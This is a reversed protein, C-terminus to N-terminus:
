SVKQIIRKVLLKDRLSGPPLLVVEPQEMMGKRVAGAIPDVKLLLQIVREKLQDTNETIEIQFVLRRNSGAENLIVEYDIIEPLQYLVDDFLAPFLEVNGMLVKSERRKKVYGIRKLFPTCACAVSSTSSIDQTRYRILPMAERSLTTFVLEGEEGEPLVQGTDPDVVEAVIDLENFHYGSECSCDVALGLGMETLGYHSRVECGWASELYRKMPLSLYSTTTFLCKVGLRPLDYIKETEKTLRYILRTEGFLVTSHQERITEIQEQSSKDTGTIVAKAGMKEVGKALLDAQGLVGRFPLLIQVVGDRGTVTSIGAAMFDTIIEIDRKTFFVRKKPGITGSTTFTIVRVVEGQSVCLFDFPNASLDSPDTLPLRALDSLSQVDDPTVGYRDFLKRYFRSHRYAYALTKKLKYLRFADFVEKDIEDVKEIGMQKKFTPEEDIQKKCLRYLSEQLQVPELM